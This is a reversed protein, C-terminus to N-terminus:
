HQDSPWWGFWGQRGCSTCRHLTAVTGHSGCSDCTFDLGMRYDPTHELGSKATELESKLQRMAAGLRNLKAASECDAPQSQRGVSTELRDLRHEMSILRDNIESLMHEVHSPVHGNGGSSGGGNSPVVTVKPISANVPAAPRPSPTARTPQPVPASAPASAATPAPEAIRATPRHQPSAISQGTAQKFLADVEEQSLLENESGM